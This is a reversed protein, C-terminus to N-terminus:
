QTLERWKSGEMIPAIKIKYVSAYAAIWKALKSEDTDVIWLGAPKSLIVHGPIVQEDETWTEGRERRGNEIERMKKRNEEVPERFEFTIMYRMEDSRRKANITVHM